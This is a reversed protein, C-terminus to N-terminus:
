ATVDPRIKLTYGYSSGYDCTECGSEGFSDDDNINKTDFFEALETMVKLNPSPAEYMCEIKVAVLNPTNEKVEIYGDSEWGMIYHESHQADFISQVKKLIEENTHNKMYLREDTDTGSLIVVRIIWIM